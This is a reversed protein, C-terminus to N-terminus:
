IWRRVRAKYDAYSAGFARDLYREERIILVQSFVVVVPLLIVAWTMHTLCAVGTYLVLLSLYMPNRTIKYIGSTVLATSPASTNLTGGGRIMVPISAGALVVWGCVLVIGLILAYPNPLFPLPIRTQVFWGILFVAIYVLPPPIRVGPSDARQAKASDRAIMNDM